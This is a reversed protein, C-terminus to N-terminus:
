HCLWIGEEGDGQIWSEVPRWGCAQLLADVGAAGLRTSHFVELEQGAALSFAQGEVELVRARLMRARAVIRWAGAVGPLQAASPSRVALAEAQVRLEVEGPPLGLGTLAGQYWARAPPNDYQALIRGGDAPLGGPSLNASVLLCGGAPVARRLGRLLTAQPLNPLLGFCTVLLGGDAPWGPWCDAMEEWLAESELDAVLPHLRPGNLAQRAHLAAELVLSPSADLPLYAAAGDAPAQAQWHALLATDKQGGGCGLGVVTGAPANVTRVARAFAGAYLAATEESTRSPSWAQHYALWRTAQAPTAYLFWGPLRGAALAALLGSRQRQPLVSAHFAVLPLTPPTSPPSFGPM